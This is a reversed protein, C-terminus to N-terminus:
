RAYILMLEISMVKTLCERTGNPFLMITAVMVQASTVPAPYFFVRFHHADNNCGYKTYIRVMVVGVLHDVLVMLINCSQHDRRSWWYLSPIVMLIM